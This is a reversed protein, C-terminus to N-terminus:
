AGIELEQLVKLINENEVFEAVTKKGLVRAVANMAQVLARNVPDKDVNRVFSGDIKLYDVQLIRLYSFSSFGEGFDDLAFRCGASKLRHIWRGARVM